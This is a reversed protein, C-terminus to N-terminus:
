KLQDCPPGTVISLLILQRSGKRTISHPTGRPIVALTGASLNTDMGGIKQVGEGAVVYLMEDADAHMHEALPDRLQLLTATSTATCGLVSSRGPANKEVFDPISVASPPGSPRPAPPAPAPAPEPKPPPPPPPAETLEATTKVPRTQLTVEREFTFYGEREFRLRYTGASLTRLVVTGDADTTGERQVPGVAAVSVGDLPKGTRDTVFVTITPRAAPTTQRPAPKPPPKPTQQTPPTTQPPKEAPLQGISLVLMLLATALM